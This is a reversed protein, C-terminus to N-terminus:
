LDDSDPVLLMILDDAYLSIRQAEPPVLPRLVRQFHLWMVARNLVELVLVFFMPSLHTGRAFVVLTVSVGAQGVM